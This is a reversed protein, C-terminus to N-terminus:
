SWGEKTSLGNSHRGHDVRDNHFSDGTWGEEQIDEEGDEAGADLEQGQEGEDDEQRADDM